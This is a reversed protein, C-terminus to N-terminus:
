HPIKNFVRRRHHDDASAGYAHAKRDIKTQAADAADHDLAVLVGLWDRLSLVEGLAGHLMEMEPTRFLFQARRSGDRAFVADSAHRAVARQRAAVAVVPQLAFEHTREIERVIFPQRLIGGLGYQALPRRMDPGDFGQVAPGALRHMRVLVACADIDDIAISRFPDQARIVDHPAVAAARDHAFLGADGLGPRIMVPQHHQQHEAGGAEVPQQLAKGSFGEVVHQM